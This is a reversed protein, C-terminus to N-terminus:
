TPLDRMAPAPRDPRGPSAKRLGTYVALAYHVRRGLPIETCSLLALLEVTDVATMAQRNRFGDSESPLAGELSGDRLFQRDRPSIDGGGDYTPNM